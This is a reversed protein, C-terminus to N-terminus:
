VCVCVCEVKMIYKKHENNEFVSDGCVTIYQRFIALLLRLNEENNSELILNNAFESVLHQLFLKTQEKRAQNEIVHRLVTTLILMLQRKENIGSKAVNTHIRTHTYLHLILSMIFGDFLIVFLFIFYFCFIPYM